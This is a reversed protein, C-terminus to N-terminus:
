HITKTSLLGNVVDALGARHDHGTTLEAWQGAVAALRPYEAPDLASFVRDRHTPTGAEARRRSRTFRILLEGATFYWIMRYAYVAQRSTLGCQMAADLIDEVIWLASPAMLDDAALVEVIWPCDALVDHLTRAAALLRQRPETPLEPRPFARAHAELLLLLLEDKDQVHHYLAMPTSSLDKALRRMSLQEVGDTEVIAAAAAVIAEQSLRAPRGAKRPAADKASM